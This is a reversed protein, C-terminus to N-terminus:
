ADLQSADTDYVVPIEDERWMGILEGDIRQERGGLQTLGVRDGVRIRERVKPGVALVTGFPSRFDQATEPIHLSGAMQAPMDRKVIVVDNM